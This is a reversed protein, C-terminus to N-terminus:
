ITVLILLLFCEFVCESFNDNFFLMFFGMLCRYGYYLLSSYKAVGLVLMIKKKM